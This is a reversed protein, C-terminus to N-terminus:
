TSTTVANNSSVLEQVGLLGVRDGVVLVSVFGM